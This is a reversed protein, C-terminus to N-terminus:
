GASLMRELVDAESTTLADWPNGDDTWGVANTFRDGVRVSVVEVVAGGAYSITVEAEDARWAVFVPVPGYTAADVVVIARVCDPDDLMRKLIEVAERHPVSNIM